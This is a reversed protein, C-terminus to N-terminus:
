RREIGTVLGMVLHVSVRDGPGPDDYIADHAVKAETVPNSSGEMDIQLHYYREGHLEFPQVRKIVGDRHGPLLSSM